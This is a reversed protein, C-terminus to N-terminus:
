EFVMKWTAGLLCSYRWTRFKLVGGLSNWTDFNQKKIFKRVDDNGDNTLSLCCACSDNEQDTRQSGPIM